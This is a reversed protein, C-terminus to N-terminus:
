EVHVWAHHAADAGQPWVLEDPCAPEVWDEDVHSSGLRSGVGCLRWPWGQVDRAAEVVLFRDGVPLSDITFFMEEIQNDDYVVPESWSLDPYASLEAAEVLAWRAARDGGSVPNTNYEVTLPTGATSATYCGLQVACWPLATRDTDDSTAPSEDASADNTLGDSPLGCASAFLVASTAAASRLM